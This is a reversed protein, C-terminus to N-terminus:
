IQYCLDFKRSFLFTM